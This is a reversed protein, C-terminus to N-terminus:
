VRDAKVGLMDLLEIVLDEYQFNSFTSLVNGDSDYAVIEDNDVMVEYDTIAGEQVGKVFDRTSFVRLKKKSM